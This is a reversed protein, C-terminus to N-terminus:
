AGPDVTSGDAHRVSGDPYTFTGDENAVSEAPHTRDDQVPSAAASGAPQSTATHDSHHPSDAQSTPTASDSRHSGSSTSSDRDEHPQRPDEDRDHTTPSQPAYDKARHNVDPDVRDAARVQDEMAAQEAAQERRAEAAKAEAREAELRRGEAEHDAERAKHEARHLDDTGSVAQSRLEAARLRNNETKKRSSARLAFAAAILVLIIAAAIAVIIIIQSNM